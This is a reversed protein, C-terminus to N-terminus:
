ISISGARFDGADILANILVPKGSRALRQAKLIAPEVEEPTEVLIGTAGYGQAVTHYDTRRLVTGVDDGLMEEQGRAIQTWGGDNGVLGIVPLGHRVFTDFEAISFAASGDGYIIWVESSPRVLKAGLAFGGGVGLTGYVGPDLFSLPERPAVTYSAAAAFDGGDLILVSDDPLHQELRRLVFLSNVYEGERESMQRIEDDRERERANLQALWSAWRPRALAGQRGVEGNGAELRELFLSPDSICTLTPRRNLEAEARSRSVSILSAKPNIQSGYDLRFDMPAGALVVLDADRFAQRRKHRYLLPHQAGLLGRAMGSLYTPVGLADIAEALEGVAATRLMAQSGVLMVPRSASDLLQWARRVDTEDVHLAPAHDVTFERPSGSFLRRLHRDVYWQRLTGRLGGGGETGKAYWERVTVEPYLVDVPCEVFTPGPVGELAKIFAQEVLEELDRLRTVSTSWKVASSLLAIQDIDQLAGRGKLMTAAAGGLLVLPSQALQANKIATVTNTVGPGATVVAVGPIGTLRAFADAAFVASAEDRVDIVRLGRRKSEVLIPSVHGGCLTFLTGVGRRELVGAVVEGGSVM